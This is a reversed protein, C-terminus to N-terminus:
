GTLSPEPRSWGSTMDNREPRKLCGRRQCKFEMEFSLWLLFILGLQILLCRDSALCRSLFALAFNHVDPSLAMM